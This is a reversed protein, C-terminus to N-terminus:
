STPFAEQFVPSHCLWFLSAFFNVILKLESFMTKTSICLILLLAAECLSIQGLAEFEFILPFLGLYLCCFVVFFGVFGSLCFM